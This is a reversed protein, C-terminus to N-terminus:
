YDISLSFAHDIRAFEGFITDLFHPYLSIRFTKRLLLFNHLAAAFM